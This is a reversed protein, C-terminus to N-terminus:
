CKKIREFARKTAPHIKINAPLELKFAAKGIKEIIKFPGIFRPSLKPTQQDLNLNATSLYVM